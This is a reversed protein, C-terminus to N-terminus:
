RKYVRITKSRELIFCDCGAKLMERGRKKNECIAILLKPAYPSSDVDPDDFRPYYERMDEILVDTPMVAKGNSSRMTSPYVIVDCTILKSFENRPLVYEMSANKRLRLPMHIIINREDNMGIKALVKRALTDTECTVIVGRVQRKEITKKM